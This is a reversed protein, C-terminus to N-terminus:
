HLTVMQNYNLNSGFNVRLHIYDDRLRWKIVCLQLLGDRSQNGMLQPHVRSLLAITYVNSRKFISLVQRYYLEQLILLM